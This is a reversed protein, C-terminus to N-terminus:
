VVHLIGACARACERMCVCVLLAKQQWQGTMGLRSFQFKLGIFLYPAVSFPWLFPFLDVDSVRMCVVCVSCVCTCACCVCLACMVSCQMVCVLLADIYSRVSGISCSFNLCPM